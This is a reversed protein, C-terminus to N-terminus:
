RSEEQTSLVNELARVGADVDARTPLRGGPATLATWAREGLAARAAGRESEGRADARGVFGASLPMGARALRREAVSRLRRVAPEAVQGGQRALSWTITAVEARRGHREHSRSCPWGADDGVDLGALVLGVALAALAVVTTDVAGWGMVLALCVALVVAAGIRWDTFRADLRPRRTSRRASM